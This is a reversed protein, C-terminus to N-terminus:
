MRLLLTGLLCLFSRAALSRGCGHRLQRTKAIVYAELLRKRKDSASCQGGRVESASKVNEDTQSAATAVMCIADTRMRGARACRRAWRTRLPRTEM